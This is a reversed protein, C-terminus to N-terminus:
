LVKPFDHRLDPMASAENSYNIVKTISQRRSNPSVGTEVSAPFNLHQISSIDISASRKHGKISM